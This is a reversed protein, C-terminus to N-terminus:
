AAAAKQTQCRRYLGTQHSPRRTWFDSLPDSDSLNDAKLQLVAEGGAETWFKETGKIRRNLQKVTSEMLSSTIPLGLKRYRPYDMRSHQNQFYTLAQHVIKRPSTEGDGERPLGLEQQRQALEVIVKDVEGQWVWSIWRRYVPGGESRSRGAMASAYLYTVAHIIDLIPVFGFPKFQREWITWLWSGGDGVFAKFKAGFLGLHWARAALQEGFAESNQSSAVVDRSQVKPSWPRKKKSKEERASEAQFVLEELQELSSLENLDIQQSTDIEADEPEPVNAAKRGIESTLAEVQELNLLFKPVDPLPDPADEGREIGDARGELVGCFGAKYEHWHTKSDANQTTKQFRGGDAMACGATPPDVGSPGAIKEMLTLKRFVEVESEREQVREGGIRETLREIRKRGLIMDLLKGVATEGQPFSQLLTGLYSVKEQLSPSLAEDVSIGL